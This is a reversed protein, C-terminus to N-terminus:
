KITWLTDKSCNVSWSVLGGLDGSHGVYTLCGSPHGNQTHLTVDDGSKISKDIRARLGDVTQALAGVKQQLADVKQVLCEVNCVKAADQAQAGSYSAWIVIMAVPVSFFRMVVGMKRATSQLRDITHTPICRKFATACM